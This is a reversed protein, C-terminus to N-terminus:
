ENYEGINKLLKKIYQDRHTITGDERLSIAANFGANYSNVLLKKLEKSDHSNKRNREDIEIIEGYVRAWFDYDIPCSIDRHTNQKVFIDIEKLLERKRKADQKNM